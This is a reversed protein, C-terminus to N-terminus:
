TYVTHMADRYGAGGKLDAEFDEVIELHRMVHQISFPKEEAM